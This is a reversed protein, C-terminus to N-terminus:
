VVKMKEVDLETTQLLQILEALDSLECLRAGMGNLACDLFFPVDEARHHDKEARDALKMADEYIVISPSEDMLRVLSFAERKDTPEINFIYGLTRSEDSITSIFGIAAPLGDFILEDSKTHYFREPGEIIDQLDQLAVPSINSTDGTFVQRINNLFKEELDRVKHYVDMAMIAKLKEESFGQISADNDRNGPYQEPMMNICNCHNFDLLFTMPRITM